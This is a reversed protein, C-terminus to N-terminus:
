EPIELYLRCLRVLKRWRYNLTTAPVKIEKSLAAMSKRAKRAAAIQRDLEPRDSAELYAAIAAEAGLVDIVDERAAAALDDEHESLSSERKRPGGTSRRRRKMANLVSAVLYQRALLDDLAQRAEAPTMTAVRLGISPMIQSQLALFVAGALDERDQACFEDAEAARLLEPRQRYIVAAALDLRGCLLAVQELPPRKGLAREEPTAVLGATLLFEWEHGPTLPALPPQYLAEIQRQYPQCYQAAIRPARRVWRHAQQAMERVTRTLRQAGQLARIISQMLEGADQVLPVAARLAPGFAHELRARQAPDAWAEKFKSVPLHRLDEPLEHALRKLAEILDDVGTDASDAVNGGM